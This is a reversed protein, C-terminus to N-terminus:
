IKSVCRCDVFDPKEESSHDCIWISLYSEESRKLASLADGFETKAAKLKQNKSEESDGSEQLISQEGNSKRKLKTQSKISKLERQGDPSGLWKSVLLLERLSISHISKILGRNKAADLLLHITDTNTISTLGRVQKSFDEVTLGVFGKNKAAKLLLRITDTNTISTFGHVRKCFQKVTIIGSCDLINDPLLLINVGASVLPSLIHCINNSEGNIAARNRPNAM